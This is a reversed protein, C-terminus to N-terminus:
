LFEVRNRGLEKAKYLAKDARKMLEQATDNERFESIGFSCTIKLNNSFTYKEISDKLHKAVELADKKTTNSLIEVFEEGGWRAFTDTTRTHAQILTALEKLIIDGVEHGYTDNVNKFLDIDLIIYSFPIKDRHYRAVEKPLEENFYARNFIHTLEDHYAKTKLKQTEQALDTIETFSIITHQTVDIEKVSVLFAKHQFEQTQFTVIRKNYELKNIEEVWTHHDKSYFSEDECIFTTNVSSYKKCFNQTDYVNFFNLFMQNAYILKQAKDLVILLNEQLKAIEDILLRQKQLEKENDLQKTIFLLKKELKKLNVPKLIYGDVQLDIAEIFYGSESHATTFIIHQEPNIEKIAKVMEIGNMNPMRIDSVVIDPQYKEFYELGMKGDQAVYVKSAFYNLFKSLQKAINEEDEVYLISPKEIM